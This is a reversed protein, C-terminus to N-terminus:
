LYVHGYKLEALNSSSRILDYISMKAWTNELLIYAWTVQFTDIRSQMRPSTDPTDTDRHHSKMGAIDFRVKSLWSQLSPRNTPFFSRKAAQPLFNPSSKTNLSLVEKLLLVASWIKWISQAFFLFSGITSCKGHIKHILVMSITRDLWISAHAPIKWQKLQFRKEAFRYHFPNKKQSDASHWIFPSQILNNRSLSSWRTKSSLNRRIKAVPEKKPFRFEGAYIGKM